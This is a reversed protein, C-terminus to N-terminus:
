NGSDVVVLRHERIWHMRDQIVKDVEGGGFHRPDLAIQGAAAAKEIQQRIEPKATPLHKPMDVLELVGEGPKLRLLERQADGTRDVDSSDTSVVDVTCVGLLRQSFTRGISIDNVRVMPTEDENRGFIGRRVLLSNVHLEYRIGLRRQLVQCALFLLYAAAVATTGFVTSKRALSEPEPREQLLLLLGIVVCIALLVLHALLVKLKVLVRKNALTALVFLLHCITTLVIAGTAAPRWAAYGDAGM